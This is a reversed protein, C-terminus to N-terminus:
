ATPLFSTVGRRLLSRAMGDLATRDGMADHGGWGHVHVDVFGPALYPGDTAPGDELDVAIIQDGEITIRGNAVEDDLVLTGSLVTAAAATM